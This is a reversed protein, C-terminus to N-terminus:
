RVTKKQIHARIENAKCLLQEATWHRTLWITLAAGSVHWWARNGLHTMNHNRAIFWSAREGAYHESLIESNFKAAFAWPNMARVSIHNENEGLARWLSLKQASNLQCTQAFAPRGTIYFLGTFYIIGPLLALLILIAGIACISIAAARPRSLQIKKPPMLRPAVLERLGEM